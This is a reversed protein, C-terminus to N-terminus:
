AKTVAIRTAPGAEVPNPLPVRVELIGDKYSAKVDKESSGEPLPLDRTFSGYRLERRHFYKGESKEEERREAQIHLTGDRVTIEVDKDPDIGAMEARVVLTGDERYEEVRLMDTVDDPWVMLPRLLWEPWRGAPRDPAAPARDKKVVAM